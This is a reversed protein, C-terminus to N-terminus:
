TIFPRQVPYEQPFPGTYKWYEDVVIVYDALKLYPLIYTEYATYEADAHAFATQVDYGRETFDAIFKLEKAKHKDAFIYYRLGRNLPALLPYFSYVGELILIDSPVVKRPPFHGGTHHDYPTVYVEKKKTVLTEVDNTLRDLNHSKQDFGILNKLIRESRALQYSDTPLIDVSFKDKHLIRIREAILQAFTSKGIAGSGAISVLLCGSVGPMFHTIQAVVKDAITTNDQHEGKRKSFEVYAETRRREKAIEELNECIKKRLDFFDRGAEQVLNNPFEMKSAELERVAQEIDNSLLRLGDREIKYSIVRFVSIDFPLNEINSTITITKNGICHSIGLEYFVNPSDESIDAVVVDSSIIERVINAPINAPGPDDDARVCRYGCKELASKIAQHYVRDYKDNFSMIVFCKKTM